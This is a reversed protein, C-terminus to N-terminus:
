GLLSRYLEDAGVFRIGLGPKSNSLSKKQLWVVKGNLTRELIEGDAPITLKLFEGPSFKPSEDFEVYAGGKSLNKMKTPYVEGSQLGEIDLELSTKYRPHKQSKIAPNRLLKRCLNLLDNNVLPRNLLHVLGSDGLFRSGQKQINEGVIIIPHSYKSKRIESVFNILNKDLKLTEIM